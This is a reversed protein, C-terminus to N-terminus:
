CAILKDRAKLLGRTGRALPRSSREAGLIMTVGLDDILKDFMAKQDDRFYPGTYNAGFGQIQQFTQSPDIVIKAAPPENQGSASGGLVLITFFLLSASRNRIM